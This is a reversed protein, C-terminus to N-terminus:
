SKCFELIKKQHKEFIKEDVYGYVGQLNNKFASSCIKERIIQAHSRFDTRKQIEEKIWAFNDAHVILMFVDRIDTSRCSVCKMAILADQNIIRISLEENITKGRLIRKKSNDFVWSATFTANSRRDLVANVLIDMSVKFQYALEKEYRVFEGYYRSATKDSERLIYKNEVLIKEIDFLKEKGMIVIDCDVSFRPLTYANVAYGGILVFDNKYLNKLITFIEKERIEFLNM